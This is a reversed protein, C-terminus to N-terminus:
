FIYELNLIDKLKHVNYNFNGLPFHYNSESHNGIFHSSGNQHWDMGTTNYAIFVHGGHNHWRQETIVKEGDFDPEESMLTGSDESLRRSKESQRKHFEESEGPLFTFRFDNNNSYEVSPGVYFARSKMM